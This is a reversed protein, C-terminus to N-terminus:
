LPTIVTADVWGVWGNQAQVQAWQGQTQLLRLRSGAELTAAVPTNGDPQMWAQAGAAPVVHTPLWSPAESPAPEPPPVPQVAAAAAANAARRTRVRAVARNIRAVARRRALSPIVVGGLIAGVALSELFFARDPYLRGYQQLLVVASLGMMLGGITGAVSIRPKWGANRLPQNIRM